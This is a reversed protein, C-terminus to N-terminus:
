GRKDSLSVEYGWPTQGDTTKAWIVPYTPAHDPFSGYTDTLYVLCEPTVGQADLCDFVPRFDTGGGGVSALKVDFANPSDFEDVQNVDADCYIVTIRTPNTDECIGRVEATFAALTANDISGSTDIAVVVHGMSESHLAPLYTGGSLFRRNPRAWSYDDRARASMFRRLEDRWPVVPDLIETVMRRIRDSLQGQMEAAKAAQIVATKVESVRQQTAAEDGLEEGDMCDDWQGDGSGNDPPLDPMTAYIHEESKDRYQPDCLWGDVPVFSERALDNNISHDTAHNWKRHDREGKRWPHLRAVHEVEHALVTVLETVTLKDAFDPNIFVKSGNTAATPGCERTEVIPMRMLLSAHFPLRAVMQATAKDIKTFERATM